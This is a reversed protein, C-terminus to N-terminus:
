EDGVGSDPELATCVDDFVLYWLSTKCGEADEMSPNSDNLELPQLGKVAEIRAELEAIRIKLHDSDAVQSELEAIRGVLPDHVAAWYNAFWSVMLGEDIDELTWNNDQKHQIFAVAWEMADATKPIESM